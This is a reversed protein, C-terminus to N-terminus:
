PTMDTTPQGVMVYKGGSLVFSFTSLSSAVAAGLSTSAASFGSGWVVARGGTADQRLIVTLTPVGSTPAAVTTSATTLTLDMVQHGLVIQWEPLGTSGLRYQYLFGSDTALWLTGDPLQEPNAAKRKAETGYRVIGGGGNASAAVAQFFLYWQRTALAGTLLASSQPPPVAPFM